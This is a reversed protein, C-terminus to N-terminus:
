YLLYLSALLSLTVLPAAASARLEEPTLIQVKTSTFALLSLVEAVLLALLTLVQKCLADIEDFIIV